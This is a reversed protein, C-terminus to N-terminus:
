KRKYRIITPMRPTLSSAMIVMKSVSHPPNKAPWCFRSTRAHLHASIELVGKGCCNCSIIGDPSAGFFPFALDVVLGSRAVKFNARDKALIKVYMEKADKEHKCEYM